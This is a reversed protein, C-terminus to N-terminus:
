AVTLQGFRTQILPSPLSTARRIVGERATAKAASALKFHHHPLTNSSLNLLLAWLLTEPTCDVFFAALAALPGYGLKRHEWGKRHELWRQPRRM